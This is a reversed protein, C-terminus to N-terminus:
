KRRLFFFGVLSLPDSMFHFEGAVRATGLDTAVLWGPQLLEPNTLLTERSAPSSLMLNSAKLDSHLIGAAHCDQVLRLAEVAVVRLQQDNLPGYKQVFDELDGGGCLDM